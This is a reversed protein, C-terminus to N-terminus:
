DDRGPPLMPPMDGPKRDPHDGSYSPQEGQCTPCYTVLEVHKDAAESWVSFPIEYKEGCTKCTVSVTDPITKEEPEAVRRVLLLSAAGLAVVAVGIKVYLM